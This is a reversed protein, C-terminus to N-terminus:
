DARNAPASVSQAALFLRAVAAGGGAVYQEDISQPELGGLMAWDLYALTGSLRLVHTGGKAVWERERGDLEPKLEHWFPGFPRLPRPVMLRCTWLKRHM